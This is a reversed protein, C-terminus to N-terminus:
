RPGRGHRGCSECLKFFTRDSTGIYKRYPGQVARADEILQGDRLASVM